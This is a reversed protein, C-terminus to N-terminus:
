SQSHNRWTECLSLCKNTMGIQEWSWTILYICVGACYALKWERGRRCLAWQSGTMIISLHSRSWTCLRCLCHSLQMDAWVSFTTGSLFSCEVVCARSCISFINATHAWVRLGIVPFSGMFVCTARSLSCGMFACAPPFLQVWSATFQAQAFKHFHTSNLTVPSQYIYWTGKPGQIYEICHTLSWCSHNDVVYQFAM